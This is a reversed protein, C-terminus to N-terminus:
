SCGYSTVFDIFILELILVIIFIKIIDLKNTLVGMKCTCFFHGIMIPCKEIITERIMLNINQNLDKPM